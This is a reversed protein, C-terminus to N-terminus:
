QEKVVRFGFHDNTAAVPTDTFCTKALSSEEEPYTWGGGVPLYSEYGPVRTFCNLEPNNTSMTWEIVNGSLDFIGYPNPQLSAVPQVHGKHQGPWGDAYDEESHDSYIVNQTTITGDSTGYEYGMGGAAAWQVEEITPLDYGYFDAFAKASYYEIFNVPWNKVEKHSPLKFDLDHPGAFLVDEDYDGRDFTVLERGKLPVGKPWFKHLEAWNTISDIAQVGEPLNDNDFYINWDVKKPNVISIDQVQVM